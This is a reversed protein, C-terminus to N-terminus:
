VVQTAVAIVFVLGSAVLGIARLPHQNGRKIFWQTLNVLYLLLNLLRLGVFGFFCLPLWVFILLSSLMIWGLNDYFFFMQLFESETQDGLDALMMMRGSPGEVYVYDGFQFQYGLVNAGWFAAYYSGVIGILIPIICGLLSLTIGIRESSKSLWLRVFLLAILDSFINSLLFVMEFITRPEGLRISVLENQTWMWYIQTVLFALSTLTASRFVTRAGFPLYYLKDFVLLIASQLDSRSYQGGRIWETITEKAAGSANKDLFHFFAYTAGALAAAAIRFM